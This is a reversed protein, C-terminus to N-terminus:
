EKQGPQFPSANPSLGPSATPSTKLKEQAEAPLKNVRALLASVDWADQEKLAAQFSPMGSLRIGNEVKWYTVGVPDDTVMGEPTLLQPAEPFMGKAIAPAPQQLSGHCQACNRKYVGAGEVLDATTFSSVDRKPAERIIRGELAKGAIFREFPMPPATAAAPALGALLYALVLLPFVILGVILGAVFKGM